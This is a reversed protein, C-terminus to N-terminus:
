ERRALPRLPIDIFQRTLIPLSSLDVDSTERRGIRSRWFDSRQAAHNLLNHLQVQQWHERASRSGTEILAIEMIASLLEKPAADLFTTPSKSYAGDRLRHESFDFTM